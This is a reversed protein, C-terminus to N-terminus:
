HDPLASNNASRFSELKLITSMGSAINLGFYRSVLRDAVRRTPISSLIEAKTVHQHSYLLRPWSPHVTDGPQFNTAMYRIEEEKEFHDKLEAISDLIAAWHSSSLYKGTGSSNFKMCGGDLPVSPVNANAGIAISSACSANPSASSLATLLPGQLAPDEPGPSDADTNARLQASINPPGSTSGGDTTLCLLANTNQGALSIILSELQHIREHVSGASRPLIVEKAENSYLCSRALGRRSCTTCPIQRDCRM